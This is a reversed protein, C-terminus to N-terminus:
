CPAFRASFTILEFYPIKFAYSDAVAGECICGGNERRRSGKKEGIRWFFTECLFKKFVVELWFLPYLPYTRVDTQHYVRTFMAHQYICTCTTKALVRSFKKLVQVQIPNRWPFNVCNDERM